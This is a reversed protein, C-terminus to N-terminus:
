KNKKGLIGGSDRWNLNVAYEILKGIYYGIIMYLIAELM